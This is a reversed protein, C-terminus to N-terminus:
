LWGDIMEEYGDRIARKAARMGEGLTGGHFVEAPQKGLKRAYRHMENRGHAGDYVRVTHFRGGVIVVLVLAYDTVEARVRDFRVVLEIGRPADLVERYFTVPM